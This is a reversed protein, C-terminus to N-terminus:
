IKVKVYTPQSDLNLFYFNRSYPRIKKNCSDICAMSCNPNGLFPINSSFSKKKRPDYRCLTSSLGSGEGPLKSGERSLFLAEM